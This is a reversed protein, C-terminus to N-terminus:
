DALSMYASSVAIELNAVQEAYSQLRKKMAFSKKRENDLELALDAQKMKIEILEALIDDNEMELEARRMSAQVAATAAEQAAATEENKERIATEALEKYEELSQKLVLLEASAKASDKALQVLDNVDDDISIANAITLSESTMRVMRYSKSSRSPVSSSMNSSSNIDNNNEIGTTLKDSREVRLLSEAVKLESKAKLIERRHIEVQSLLQQELEQIRRTRLLLAKSYLKFSERNAKKRLISNKSATKQINWSSAKGIDINDDNSSVKMILMEDNSRKEVIGGEFNDNNNSINNNNHNMESAIQEEKELEDLMRDLMADEEEDDGEKITLTNLSPTSQPRYSKNNKGKSSRNHSEEDFSAGLTSFNGSSDSAFSKMSMTEDHDSDNKIIKWKIELEIKAVEGLPFVRVIPNISSSIQDIGIENLLGDLEISYLGLGKFSEVGFVNNKKLQRLILKGDKHHLKGTKNDRFITVLLDLKDHFPLVVIDKAENCECVILDLSHNRSTAIKGGREFCISLISGYAIATQQAPLVLGKLLLSFLVKIKSSGVRSSHKKVSKLM